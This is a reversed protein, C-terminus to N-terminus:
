RRRYKQKKKTLLASIFAFLFYALLNLPTILGVKGDGLILGAGLLIFAIIFSCLAAPFVGNEGKFRATFFGSIAGTLAMVAFAAVGFLSLPDKMKSIILSAIFTFVFFLALNFVTGFAFVKIFPKKKRDYRSRKM